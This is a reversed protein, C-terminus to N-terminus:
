CWTKHIVRHMKVSGTHNAAGKRSNAWHPFHSGSIVQGWISLALLPPAKQESSAQQLHGSFCTVKWSCICGQKEGGRATAVKVVLPFREVTATRIQKRVHSHCTQPFCFAKSLFAGHDQPPLSPYSYFVSSLPFDALATMNWFSTAWKLAQSIQPGLSGPFTLPRLAERDKSVQSIDRGEELISIGPEMFDLRWLSIFPM